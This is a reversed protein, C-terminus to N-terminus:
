PKRRDAFHAFAAFAGVTFVILMIYAVQDETIM